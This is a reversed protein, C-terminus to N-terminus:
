GRHSKKGATRRDALSRVAIRMFNIGEKLLINLNVKSFTVGERLRVEHAIMKVNKTRSALFIFELDALYRDITTGLFIERGKSNFGKLGCQTDTIPIRLFNRSLFRLFRSVKVRFPPLHQYYSQDKIGVVIDARKEALLRYLEVLSTLEYPFDLDTFVTVQGESVGIGKRLAFGKGRNNPYSIYEFDAISRQLEEISDADPPNVSGDNVLIYRIAVEPLEEALKDSSNLIREKWDGHPNYCPLVIDLLQDSM